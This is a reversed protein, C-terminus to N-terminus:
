YEDNSLPEGGAKSGLARWVQLAVGNRVFRVSGDALGVNVGGPHQSRASAMSVIDVGNNGICDVFPMNIGSVHNYTTTTPSGFLWTLGSKTEFAVFEANPDLCIETFGDISIRYDIPQNLKLTHRSSDFIGSSDDGRLKECALVTNSLGDTVSSLSATHIARYVANSYVHIVTAPGAFRSNADTYTNPLSGANSRINTGASLRSQQRTDSPCLFVKM